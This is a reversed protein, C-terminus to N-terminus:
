QREQPLLPMMVPPKKKGPPSNRRVKCLVESYLGQDVGIEAGVNFKMEGFLAALGDRMFPITIPKNHRTWYDWHKTEEYYKNLIYEVSDM